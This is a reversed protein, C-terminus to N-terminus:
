VVLFSVESVDPPTKFVDLGASNNRVFLHTAPHVRQTRFVFQGRRFATLITM